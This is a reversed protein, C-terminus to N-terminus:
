SFSFTKKRGVVAIVGDFKSYIQKVIFMLNDTRAMQVRIPRHPLMLRIQVLPCVLWCISHWINTTPSVFAVNTHIQCMARRGVTWM